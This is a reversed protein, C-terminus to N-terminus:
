SEDYEPGHFHFKGQDQLYESELRKLSRAKLAKDVLNYLVAHQKLLLLREDSLSAESDIEILSTPNAAENLKHALQCALVFFASSADIGGNSMTHSLLYETWYETAYVHFGHLGKLVRLYKPQEPYTESFVELGSLLCTVTAVGHEQLAEQEKIVLNSSTQLFRRQNDVNEVSTQTM